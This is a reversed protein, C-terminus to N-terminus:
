VCVLFFRIFTARTDHRCLVFWIKVETL